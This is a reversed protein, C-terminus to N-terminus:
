MSPSRVAPSVPWSCPCPGTENSQVGCGTAVAVATAAGLLAAPFAIRARM